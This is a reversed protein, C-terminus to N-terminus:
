EITTLQVTTSTEAKLLLCRKMKSIHDEEKRQVAGM